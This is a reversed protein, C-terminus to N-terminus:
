WGPRTRVRNRPAGQNPQLVGKMQGAISSAKSSAKDSDGSGWIPSDALEGLALPLLHPLVYQDPVPLETTGEMHHLDYTPADIVADFKVLLSEQPIPDMRIMLRAEDGLSVGTNEFCYRDPRGFNRSTAVYGGLGHSGRRDAGLFGLGEDDRFLEQGNDQIRPNSVLRSVLHDTLMITDFYITATVTGTSRHQNLVQPTGSVSVIENMVPEGDIDIACGLHYGNLSLGVLENEGEVIDFSVDEAARILHSVTTQRMKEPAAAFWKFIASNVCDLLISRDDVTLQSFSKASSWRALRQALEAVTM